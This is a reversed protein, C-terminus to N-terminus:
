KKKGNSVELGKRILSLRMKEPMRSFSELAREFEDGYRSRIVKM